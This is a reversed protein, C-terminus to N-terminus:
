IDTIQHDFSSNTNSSSLKILGVTDLVLHFYIKIRPGSVRFSHSSQVLTVRPVKLLDLVSEHTAYNTQDRYEFVCPGDSNLTKFVYLGAM